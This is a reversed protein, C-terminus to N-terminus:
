HNSRRLFYAVAAIILGVTVGLPLLDAQGDWSMVAALGTVGLLTVIVGLLMVELDHVSDVKMWPAFSSTRGLFLQWFGGSIVYLITALLFVDIVEVFHLRLTELAHGDPHAIVEILVRFTEVFGIVLLALAAVLTAIIPLVFIYRIKPIERDIVNEARPQAHTTDEEHAM